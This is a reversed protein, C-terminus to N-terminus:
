SLATGMAAAKEGAEAVMAVVDAHSLGAAEAAAMVAEDGEDDAERIPAVLRAPLLNASTADDHHGALLQLYHDPFNWQKGLWAAVDGHHWGFEATELEALTGEGAHWRELVAPYRRDRAVLVPIGMDELLATTFNESQRTPDLRAALLSALAARKSATAWFRHHDFGNGDAPEPLAARAGLSILLGELQNRGMLTAAQQVSTAATRLGFGASNVVSLVRASAGPDHQIIAAVAGMDVDTEALADLAETIVTPFSAPEYDGLVKAFDPARDRRLLGM